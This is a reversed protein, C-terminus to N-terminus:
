PTNWGSHCRCWSGSSPSQPFHGASSGGDRWALHKGSGVLPDVLWRRRRLLVADWDGADRHELWDAWGAGALGRALGPFSDGCGSFGFRWRLSSSVTSYGLKRNWTAALRALTPWYAWLFAGAILMGRWSQPGDASIPPSSGSENYGSLKPAHKGHLASQRVSSPGACVKTVSHKENQPIWDNTRLDGIIFVGNEHTAGAPQFRCFGGSACWTRPEDYGSGRHRSERGISGM